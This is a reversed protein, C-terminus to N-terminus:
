KFINDAHYGNYHQLAEAFIAATTMIIYVEFIQYAHDIAVLAYVRQILKQKPSIFTM